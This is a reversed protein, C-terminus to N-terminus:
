KNIDEGEGGVFAGVEEAIKVLGDSKGTTCQKTNLVVVPKLSNVVRMMMSTNWHLYPRMAPNTDNLGATDVLMLQKVPPVPMPCPMRLRCPSQRPASGM